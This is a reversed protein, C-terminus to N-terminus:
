NGKAADDLVLVEEEVALVDEVAVELAVAATVVVLELESVDERDEEPRLAPAAAPIATAHTM